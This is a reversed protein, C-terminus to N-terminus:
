GDSVLQARVADADGDEFPIAIDAAQRCSEFMSAKLEIEAAM